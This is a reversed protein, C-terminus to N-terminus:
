EKAKALKGSADKTATSIGDMSKKVDNLAKTATETGKVVTSLVLQTEAM